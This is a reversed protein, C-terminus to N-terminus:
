SKGAKAPLLVVLRVAHCSMQGLLGIQDIRVASIRESCIAPQLLM